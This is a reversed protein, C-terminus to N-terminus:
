GLTVFVKEKFIDKLFEMTKSRVNLDVIWKQILQQLHHSLSRFKGKHMHVDLKGLVM